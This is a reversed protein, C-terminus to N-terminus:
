ENVFYGWTDGDYLKYINLGKESLRICIKNGKSAPESVIIERKLLDKKVATLMTPYKDLRIEKAVDTYSVEPKLEM